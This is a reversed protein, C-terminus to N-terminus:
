HYWIIIHTYAYLLIIPNSSQCRNVICYYIRCIPRGRSHLAMRTRTNFSSLNWNQRRSDDLDRDAHRDDIQYKNNRDTSKQLKALSQRLYPHTKTSQQRKTNERPLLKAYSAFLLRRWLKWPRVRSVIGGSMPSPHRLRVCLVISFTLTFLCPQPNGGADM